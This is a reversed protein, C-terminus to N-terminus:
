DQKMTRYYYVTKKIGEEYSTPLMSFASQFKSSDFVYDFESQYLMEYSEAVNKDFTGALRLMWRPLVRYRPAVGSARAAIAIFEQGTLPPFATPLHWIQNYAKGSESLVFLSRAIDPTYTYSHKARDNVLWGAKRGHSLPKFVLINLVGTRDAYPGYFDASRAILARLNGARAEDMLTTAIKSRIEGKKSCPNYPTSETMVGDVKGYMYVNDLFVLGANSRKCAQIVNSMIRPWSEVWVKHDYQLGVCLYVVSADRVADVTQELSLVDAKVTTAGQINHGSRSVAKVQKGEAILVRSLEDAIVGGAGLVTYFGM